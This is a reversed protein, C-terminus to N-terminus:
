IASTGAAAEGAAEPVDKGSEQVEDVDKNMDRVEPAAEEGSELVDKKGSDQVEEGNKDKKEVSVGDSKKPKKAAVSETSVGNKRKKASKEPSAGVLDRMTFIPIEAETKKSAKGISKNLAAIVTQSTAAAEKKAKESQVQKGIAAYVVNGGSENFATSKMTGIHCNESYEAGIKLINSDVKVIVMVVNKKYLKDFDEPVKSISFLCSGAPVKTWDSVVDKVFSYQSRVKDDEKVEGQASQGAYKGKIVDQLTSRLNAVSKRKRCFNNCIEATLQDDKISAKLIIEITKNSNTLPYQKTAVFENYFEQTEEKMLAVWFSTKEANESQVIQSAMNQAVLNGFFTNRAKTSTQLSAKTNDDMLTCFFKYQILHNEEETFAGAAKRDGKYYTECLFGLTEPNISKLDTESEEKWEGDETYQNKPKLSMSHDYLNNFHKEPIQVLNCGVLADNEKLLKKKKKIISMMRHNGECIVVKTPLNTGESVILLPTCNTLDTDFLQMINGAEIIDVMTQYRNENVRRFIQGKMDSSAIAHISLSPSTQVVKLKVQDAFKLTSTGEQEDIEDKKADVGGQFQAALIEALNLPDKPKPAVTSSKPSLESYDEPLDTSDKPAVVSHTGMIKSPIPSKWHEKEVVAGSKSTLMPTPTSPVTSYATPSAVEFPSSPRTPSSFVM